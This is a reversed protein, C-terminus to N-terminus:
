TELCAMGIDQALVSGPASARIDDCTVPCPAAKSLPSLMRRLRACREAACAMVGDPITPLNNRSAARRCSEPSCGCRNRWEKVSEQCKAPPLSAVQHAWGAPPRTLHNVSRWTPWPAAYRRSAGDCTAQCRM